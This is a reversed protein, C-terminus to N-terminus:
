WLQRGITFTLKRPRPSEVVHSVNSLGSQWRAPVQYTGDAGLVGFRKNFAPFADTFFSGRRTKFEAISECFNGLLCLDYGEMAICTSIIVSWMIANPYMRLGERLTMQQEKTTAEQADQALTNVHYPVKKDQMSETDLSESPALPTPKLSPM